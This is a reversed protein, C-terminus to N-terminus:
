QCAEGLQANKEVWRSEIGKNNEKQIVEVFPIPFDAMEVNEERLKGEFRM